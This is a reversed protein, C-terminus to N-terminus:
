HVKSAHRRALLVPRGMWRGYRLLWGVAVAAWALAALAGSWYAGAPWLAAALRLLVAAQLLRYLLWLFDDAVVARGTQGCAVRTAMALLTTGLFGLTYAHLAAAPQELASLLVAAGLWAFSRHLMAPLRQRVSQLRSWRWAQALLLGGLAGQGLRLALRVGGEGPVGLLLAPQLLAQLAMVGVLTWLLWQPWREDLRASVNGFFPIMRHLAAAYAVGMCGWLAALVLARVLTWAQAVVAAATADLVLAGFACAAMLLRAHTRDPATSSRVLGM